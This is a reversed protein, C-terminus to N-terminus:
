EWFRTEVSMVNANQPTDVIHPLRFDTQIVKDCSNMSGDPAKLLTEADRKALIEDM